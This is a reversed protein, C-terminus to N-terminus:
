AVNSLDVVLLPNTLDPRSGIVQYTIPWGPLTDGSGTLTTIGWEMINGVPDLRVLYSVVELGPSANSFEGLAFNSHFSMGAPRGDVPWGDVPSGDANLALLQRAGRQGRIVVIEEAPSSDINGVAM